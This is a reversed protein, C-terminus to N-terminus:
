PYTSRMFKTVLREYAKQTQTYDPTMMDRQEFENAVLLLVASKAYGPVTTSDDHSGLVYTITANDWRDTQQTPWDQLYALRLHSRSTDLQYISSSLTQQTNTTDYFTISTIATVPRHPFAIEDLWPITLAMTRKIFHTNTDRELQERASTIKTALEVDFTTNSTAINLHRKVEHITVPETVPETVLEALPTKALKTVKASQKWM